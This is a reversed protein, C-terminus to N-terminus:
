IQSGKHQHHRHDDLINGAKHKHGGCRSCQPNARGTQSKNSIERSAGAPRGQPRNSHVGEVVIPNDKNGDRLQVHQEKVAEKQRIKKKARELTLDADMQLKESLEKDRIGVVLRDRLMEDRLDGYECNKVLEYLATIYQESSEGKRQDRRNFRAREYITNKRVKFFEEFKAM